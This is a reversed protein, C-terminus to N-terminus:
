DRFNDWASQDFVESNDRFDLPMTVRDKKTKRGASPIKTRNVYKVVKGKIAFDGNFRSAIVRPIANELAGVREHRNGLPTQNRIMLNVPSEPLTLFADTIQNPYYQRASRVGHSKLFANRKHIDCLFFAMLWSETFAAGRGGCQIPFNCEIYWPLFLHPTSPSHTLYFEVINPFTYPEPYEIFKWGTFSKVFKHFKRVERLFINHTPSLKPM